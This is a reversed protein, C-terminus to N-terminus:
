DAVKTPAGNTNVESFLTTPTLSKSSGQRNAKTHCPGAKLLRKNAARHYPNVKDHKQKTLEYTTHATTGDPTDKSATFNHRM